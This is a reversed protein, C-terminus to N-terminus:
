RWGSNRYWSGVVHVTVFLSLSRTRSLVWYVWTQSFVVILCYNSRCFINAYKQYIITLKGFHNSNQTLYPDQKTIIINSIQLELDFDLWNQNSSKLVSGILQHYRDISSFNDGFLNMYKQTVDRGKISVNDNHIICSYWDLTTLSWNGATQPRM